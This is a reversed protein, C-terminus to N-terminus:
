LGLIDVLKKSKISYGEKLISKITSISRESKYDPQTDKLYTIKSGDKLVAKYYISYRFEDFNISIEDAIIADKPDFNKILVVKNRAM